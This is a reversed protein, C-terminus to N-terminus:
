GSSKRTRRSPSAPKKKVAESADVQERELQGLRETLDAFEKCLAQLRKHNGVQQQVHALEAGSVRRSKTKGNVWRALVYYPGRVESEKSGKRRVPVMQETLTAQELSRIGALEGLIAKRRREIDQISDMGCEGKAHTGPELAVLTFLM